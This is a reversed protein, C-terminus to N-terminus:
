KLYFNFHDNLKFLHNNQEQVEQSLIPINFPKELDEANLRVHLLTDLFYKFDELGEPNMVEKIYQNLVKLEKPKIEGKKFILYEHSRQEKNISVYLPITNESM